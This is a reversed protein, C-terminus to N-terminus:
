VHRCMNIDNKFPPYRTKSGVGFQFYFTLTNPATLPRCLSASYSLCSGKSLLRSASVPSCRCSLLCKQFLGGRAPLMGLLLTVWVRTRRERWKSSGMSSPSAKYPKCTPLSTRGKLLVKESRNFRQHRIAAAASILNQKCLKDQSSYRIQGWLLRTDQWLSRSRPVSRVTAGMYHALGAEPKQFTFPFASCSILIM